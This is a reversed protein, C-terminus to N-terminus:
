SAIDYLIRELAARPAVTQLELALNLGIEFPNALAALMRLHLFLDILKPTGYLTGPGLAEHNLLFLVYVRLQLRGDDITDVGM